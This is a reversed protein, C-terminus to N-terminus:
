CNSRALFRGGQGDGAVFGACRRAGRGGSSLGLWRVRVTVRVSVRVFVLRGGSARRDAGGREFAGGPEKAGGTLRRSQSQELQERLSLEADGLDGGDGAFLERRDRLAEADKAGLVEDGTTAVSLVDEVGEGVLVDGRQEGGHERVGALRGRLEVSGRVLALGFVWRVIVRLM